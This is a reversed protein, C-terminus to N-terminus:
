VPPKPPVLVRVVQTVFAPPTWTRRMRPWAWELFAAGGVPAVAGVVGLTALPVGGADTLAGLVSVDPPRLTFLKPVIEGLLEQAMLLQGQYNDPGPIPVSVRVWTIAGSGQAQENKVYFYLALEHASGGGALPREVILDKAGVAGAFVGQRVNQLWQERAWPSGLTPIRIGTNEQLVRYGQFTFCVPASHFSSLNRSEVIVVNLPQYVGPKAYERSLLLDSNLISAVRDWNYEHVMQWEGLQKPLSMLADRDGMNFLTQVFQRDPSAEKLETDIFTVGQATVYSVPTFLLSVLFASALLGVLLRTSLEPM